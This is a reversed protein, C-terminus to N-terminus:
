EIEQWLFFGARPQPKRVHIPPGLRIVKNSARSGPSFPHESNFAAASALVGPGSKEAVPIAYKISAVKRRGANYHVLKAM